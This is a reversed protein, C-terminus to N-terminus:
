VSRLDCVCMDVSENMACRSRIIGCGSTPLHKEYLCRNKNPVVLYLVMEQPLQVTCVTYLGKYLRMLTFVYELCGDAIVSTQHNAKCVVSTKTLHRLGRCTSCQTYLSCLKQKRDKVSICLWGKM